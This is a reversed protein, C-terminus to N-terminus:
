RRLLLPALSFAHPILLTMLVRRMVVEQLNSRMSEPLLTNRRGTNCVGCRKM